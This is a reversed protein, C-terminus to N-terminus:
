KPKYDRRLGLIYTAKDYFAEGELIERSVHIGLLVWGVRLRENIENMEHKEYTEICSVDPPPNTIQLNM